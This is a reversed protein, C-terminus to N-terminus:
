KKKKKTKKLSKQYSERNYAATKKKECGVLIPVIPISQVEKNTLIKGDIDIYVGSNLTDCKTGDDGKFSSIDFGYDEKLKALSIFYAGNKKEYKEYSKETYIEYGKKMLLNTLTAIASKSSITQKDTKLDVELNTENKEITENKDVTENKEITKNTDNKEPEPVPKKNCGVLLLCIILIVLVKKM